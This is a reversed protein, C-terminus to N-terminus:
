WMMDYFIDNVDVVLDDYLSVKIQQPPEPADFDREPNKVAYVNDLVFGEPSNHYVEVRRSVTDVIWYEKVGFREYAKFKKGRDNRMTSLSLIEVVLDPGGHVGDEQIKSEDCIVMNDPIFIDRETLFLDLHGRVAWVSTNDKKELYERLIQQINGSIFYHNVGPNPYVPVTEGDILEEWPPDRWGNEQQYTDSM